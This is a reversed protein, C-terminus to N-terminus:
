HLTHILFTVLQTFLYFILQHSICNGMCQFWAHAGNQKFNGCNFILQRMKSDRPFLCPCWHKILFQRWLSTRSIDPTLSALLLTTLVGQSIGLIPWDRTCFVAQKSVLGKSPPVSLVQDLDSGRGWFERQGINAGDPALEEGSRPQRMRHRQCDRLLRSLSETCHWPLWSWASPCLQALMSPLPSESVLFIPSPM